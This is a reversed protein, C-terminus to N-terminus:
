TAQGGSIGEVKICLQSGFFVSSVPVRMREQSYVMQFFMFALCDLPVLMGLKQLSQKCELQSMHRASHFLQKNERGKVAQV